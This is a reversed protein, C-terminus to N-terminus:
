RVDTSTGTRPEPPGPLAEAPRPERQRIPSFLGIAVIVLFIGGVVLLPGRAGFHAVLATLVAAGIPGLASHLTWFASTVRGLLHDPTLQQRLSMSCIGALAMGVSYALVAGDFVALGGTVGMLAVGIGCVVYSSLWCAGFGWRRRLRATLAAGLITGAGAFGLMYGVASEGHGLENRVRYIFVDTLGLSLFTIVTLLITVARLVPSSWLFRLGTLFSTRVDRWGTGEGPGAARSRLRIFALGAVSVAFSAADVAIAVTSGFSAAVVGALVPGLVYAIADTTQLRSNAEVIQERDVLNAVATVYGVQFLMSFVSAFAMVVYLLWVQPEIAWCVPIAGYLVARAVDCWIMLRRRDVRDVVVGAFLGTFVAGAGAIGTLLGMQAVSGTAQLVLLPLAVLAFADGLASMTQVAWFVAFNRDHWLPRVATHPASM